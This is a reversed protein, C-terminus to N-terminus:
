ASRRSRLTKGEVWRPAILVKKPYEPVGIENRYLHSTLLDVSAAGIHAYNQDIGSFVPEDPRNILTVIGPKRGRGACKPLRGLDFAFDVLVAQAEKKRLWDFFEEQRPLGKYLKTYRGPNTKSEAAWHFYGSTWVHRVRHDIDDSLYFGIKEYGRAKLEELALKVGAFHDATVSHFRLPESSFGTTVVCFKEWPFGAPLRPEDPLPPLIIGSISRTMLIQALRETAIGDEVPELLDLKHGLEEARARAGALILRRSTRRTLAPGSFFDIMAIVPQESAVRNRRVESMLAAVMPHPRYGLKDAVKLIKKRKAESVHHNGRFAHTVSAISVGAERAIDRFTVGSPRVPVPRLM